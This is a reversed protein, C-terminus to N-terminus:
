PEFALFVFVAFLVLHVAGHTVNTRGTVLTVTSVVATLAFLVLDKADLGLVLPLDFLIAAVVVVPVTLGISALASGMALNMSSQLRNALAARVAASTEPLLVVFAILIGITAPPAGVARIWAEAPSSLLKALGILAMLSVLMLVFSLWTEANSPPLAHEDADGLGTEPLFYDRHRVTRAFVFVAWLVLSVVAAFVLQRTSYVGEPASTTFVPLVLVLTSLTILAALEPGAGEARFSQVHHRMAGLLLCIGMVGNCIIMVASFISDRALVAKEPGGSMMLALILAAEIVTVTLALVLTGLPEGLRHAVVEAHHVGAIVAAFLASVCVLMAMTGLGAGSAWWLVASALPPVVVPWSMLKLKSM